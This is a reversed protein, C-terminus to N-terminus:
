AKGFRRERAQYEKIARVFDEEKFDPWLVETFYLESYAVRWLMFNSIRQEGSTRIVLDIDPVDPHYLYKRLTEESISGVSLFGQKVDEYMKKVASIIEYRGSYNFAVCLTYIEGGKTAEELEKISRLIEEDVMDTEGLHLFRIGKQTFYSFKENILHKALSMLEEIERKDRQWNERSFAYITLYPIRIILNFDLIRELAKLGEKHGEYRPLGRKKAWRGNGDMIIGVHKPLKSLDIGELLNHKSM